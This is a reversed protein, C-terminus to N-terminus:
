QTNKHDVIMSLGCIGVEQAFSQSVKAIENDPEYGQYVFSFCYWHVCITFMLHRLYRKVQHPLLSTMVKNKVHFRAAIQSEFFQQHGVNSTRQSSLTFCRWVRGWCFEWIQSWLRRLFLNSRNSNCVIEAQKVSFLKKWVGLIENTIRRIIEWVTWTINTQLIQYQIM